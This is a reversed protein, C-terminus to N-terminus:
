RPLHETGGVLAGGGSWWGLAYGLLLTGEMRHGMEKKKHYKIYYYCFIQRAGCKCGGGGARTGPERRNQECPVDGESRMATGSEYFGM